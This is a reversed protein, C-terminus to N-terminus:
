HLNTTFCALLGWFLCLSPSPKHCLQTLGKGSISAWTFAHVQILEFLLAGQGIHSLQNLSTEHVSFDSNWDPFMGQNGAQDRSQTYSSSLLDINREGEGKRGRFDIFTIMKKLPLIWPNDWPVPEPVSRHKETGMNPLNRPNRQKMGLKIQIESFHCSDTPVSFISAIHYMWLILWSKAKKM